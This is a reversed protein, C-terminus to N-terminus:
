HDSPPEFQDRSDSSFYRVIAAQQLYNVVSILMMVVVSKCVAQFANDLYDM